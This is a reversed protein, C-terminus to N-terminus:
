RAAAATAPPAELAAPPPADKKLGRARLVADVAARQSRLDEASPAFATGSQVRREDGRWTNTAADWDPDAGIDKSGHNNYAGRMLQHGLLPAEQRTMAPTGAAARQRSLAFPVSAFAGVVLFLGGAYVRNRAASASM